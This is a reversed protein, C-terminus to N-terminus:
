QRELTDLAVKSLFWTENLSRIVAASQGYVDIVSLGANDFVLQLALEAPAQALRVALARLMGGHSVVVQHVLDDMHRPSVHNFWTLFKDARNLCDIFSEGGPPAAGLPDSIWQRCAEPDTTEVEKFTRGAWAGYSTEHLEPCVYSTIRRPTALAAALEMARRAPSSYVAVVPVAAMREVVALHQRRGNVTLPSDRRGGFRHAANDESEGHRLLYFRVPADKM